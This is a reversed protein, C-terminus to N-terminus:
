NRPDPHVLSELEPFPRVCFEAPVSRIDIGPVEISVVGEGDEGGRIVIGIDHRKDPLDPSVAVVDGDKLRRTV